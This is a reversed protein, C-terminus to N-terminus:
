GGGARDWERRLAAFDPLDDRGRWLGRGAQLAERRGSEGSRELYLDVAERILASRTRGTRTALEGLAQDEDRTLFIQTRTM